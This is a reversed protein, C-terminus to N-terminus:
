ARPDDLWVPIELRSQGDVDSQTPTPPFRIATEVSGADPVHLLSVIELVM